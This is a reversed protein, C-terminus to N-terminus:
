LKTEYQYLVNQVQQSNKTTLKVVQFTLTDIFLSSESLTGKKSPYFGRFIYTNENSQTKDLSFCFPLLSEEYLSDSTFENQSYLTWDPELINKTYITNAAKDVYVSHGFSFNGEPYSIENIIDMKVSNFKKLAANSQRFIEKSEYFDSFTKIFVSKSPNDWAIRCDLFESVVRLPIFTQNKYLVPATSLTFPTDNLLATESNIQLVLKSNEALITILQNKGDWVLTNSSIALNQMLKRLPFLLTDNALLVPSSLDIKEGNMIVQVSDSEIVDPNNASSRCFILLFLFFLILLKKMQVNVELISKNYNM